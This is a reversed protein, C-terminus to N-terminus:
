ADKRGGKAKSCSLFGGGRSTLSKFLIQIKAQM